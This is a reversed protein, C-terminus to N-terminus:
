PRKWLLLCALLWCLGGLLVLPMAVVLAGIAAVFIFPSLPIFVLWARWGTLVTDNNFELRM